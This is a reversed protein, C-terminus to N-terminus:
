GRRYKAVTVSAQVEVPDGLARVRERLEAPQVHWASPGMAVLSEAEDANLRLAFEVSESAIPDFLGTFQESLRQGKSSDVQLLGLKDVLGRLHDGQPVVVVVEGGPQLVRHMEAANRPAFVNLVTAVAGTRIPLGHWVDAVASGIRPHAKAARRCAFKSVDLAVGRREGLAQALYYGTGAGVDLVCGPLSVARAVAQAIPAYHGAAQFEVRAAVMAASDGVVKSRGSLLSVYGQRAIDFVHNSECCVAGGRSHLPLGCHPCALVDVVDELM